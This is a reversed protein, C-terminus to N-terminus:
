MSGHSIQRALHIVLARKAQAYTWGLALREARKHARNLRRAFHDRLMALQEAYTLPANLRVYAILVRQVPMDYM